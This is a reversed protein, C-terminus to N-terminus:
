SGSANKINTAAAKQITSLAAVLDQQQKLKTTLLTHRIGEHTIRNIEDIMSQQSALLKEHKDAGPPENHGGGHGPPPPPEEAAHRKSPQEPPSSPTKPQDSGRADKKASTSATASHETTKVTSGSTMAPTSSTGSHQESHSHTEQSEKHNVDRIQPINVAMHAGVPPKSQEPARSENRPQRNMLAAIKVHPKVSIGFSSSTRSGLTEPTVHEHTHTSVGESQPSSHTPLTAPSPPTHTAQNTHIPQAIHSSAPSPQAAGNTGRNMLAAIKLRPKVSVTLKPPATLARAGEGTSVPKQQSAAGAAISGSTQLRMLPGVKLRPKVSIGVQPRQSADASSASRNKPALGSLKGSAVRGSSPSVAVNTQKPEKSSPSTISGLTPISINGIRQNM